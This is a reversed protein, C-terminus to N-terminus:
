ILVIEKKLEISYLSLGKVTKGTTLEIAAKYISLQKEYRQRLQEESVFRDSKYDVVVIGDREEFMLDIIGKIMGDSDKLKEFIGDNIKLQGAAVTFKKEREVCSSECIRRYLDTRFFAQIKRINISESEAKTLFGAETLRSIESETDAIANEFSCYQFFTHIATGREAGTLRGNESLFRPRKLQFEIDEEGSFKKSIQTVSLKSPTNSLTRDYNFDFMAKIRNIIKEDPKAVESNVEIFSVKEFESLLEYDFLNDETEYAPFGHSDCDIELRDAIATFESHM